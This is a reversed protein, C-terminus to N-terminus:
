IPKTYTEYFTSVIENTLDDITKKLTGAKELFLNGLLKEQFTDSMAMESARKVLNEYDRLLEERKELIEKLNPM